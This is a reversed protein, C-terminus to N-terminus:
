NNGDKLLKTIIEAFEEAKNEWSNKGAFNIREMIKQRSDNEIEFSIRSVFDEKNQSVSVMGEFDTLNAFPTMVVPVGVAFYENIKLPYINRNIENVQYPIIGADYKALLRPVDSPNVARLFKVNKYPELKERISQNRLNGTFEFDYNNLKQVAFEVTEIDFRHDLSGIYGIKKRTHHHIDKKAKKQFLNFEVGNKVVFSKPNMRKKQQNLFDSTTIIADVSRSFKEDVQFIRNGHRRPGIGDYCYYVHLKEQFSGILPLGYFPNFATIVIPSSVKLEKLTRKVQKKYVGINYRFLGQFFRDNKIFDVPLVPPVVLHHIYSNKGTDLKQVRKNIGTMRAVPANQRGSFTTAIDKFTFPYEVFLVNNKRALVSMIQVTSKTYEGFWTTNSICIINENEIM